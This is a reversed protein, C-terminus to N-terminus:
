AAGIALRGIREELDTIAISWPTVVAPSWGKGILTSRIAVLRTVPDSGALEHVVTPVLRILPSTAPSNGALTSVRKALSPQKHIYELKTKLDQLRTHLTRNVDTGFLKNYDDVVETAYSLDPSATSKVEQLLVFDDGNDGFYLWVIDIDSAAIPNVPKLANAPFVWYQPERYLHTWGVHFAIAEGINGKIARTVAGSQALFPVPLGRMWELVALHLAACDPHGRWLTVGSSETMQCYHECPSPM